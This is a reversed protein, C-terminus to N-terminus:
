ANRKQLFWYVLLAFSIFMMAAIVYQVPGTGSFMDAINLRDAVTALGGGAGVVATVSEKTVIPPKQTEAQITNSAVESGTAWLGIEAARRNALGPSRVKKGGITTKVWKNM